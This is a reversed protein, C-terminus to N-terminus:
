VIFKDSLKSGINEMKELGFNKEIYRETISLRKHGLSRSIDLINVGEINLLMNTWTYRGTHSSINEIDFKYHKLMSKLAGNYRGRLRGLAENQEKTLERKKDYNNLSPEHTMFSKFMYDNPPLTAIHDLLRELTNLEKHKNQRFDLSNAKDNLIDLLHSNSPKNLHRYNISALFVGDLQHQNYIELILSILKENYSIRLPKLTKKIIVEIYDKKFDKNKLFFIDSVRLGSSFISFLLMNRTDYYKSEYTMDFLTNIDNDSLIKKNSYTTKLNLKSFYNYSETYLGNRKAENLVSKIVILYQKATNASISTLLFNKFEKVWERDIDSFLIDSKNKSTKFAILKKLAVSNGDKTNQNTITTIYQNYYDIFSKTRNKTSTTFISFDNIKESIKKNLKLYDIITTKKFQNIDTYFFKKFNDESIKEALSIVKKNGSGDFYRIALYGFTDTSIKKKLIVSATM